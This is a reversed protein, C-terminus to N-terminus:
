LLHRPGDPAPAPSAEETGTQGPPTRRGEGRVRRAAAATGNDLQIQIKWAAAAAQGADDNSSRGQRASGCTLMCAWSAARSWLLNQDRKLGGHVCACAKRTWAAAHLHRDLSWRHNSLKDASLLLLWLHRTGWATQKITYMSEGYWFILHKLMKSEM